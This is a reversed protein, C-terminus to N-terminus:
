KLRGDIWVASPNTQQVRRSDKLPVPTSTTANCHPENAEYWVVPITTIYLHKPDIDAVAQEYTAYIDGPHRDYMGPKGVRHFHGSRYINIFGHCEAEVKITLDRYYYIVVGVVVLILAVVIHWPQM